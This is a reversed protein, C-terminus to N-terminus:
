RHLVAQLRAQDAGPQGPDAGPLLGEAARIATWRWAALRGGKWRVGGEITLHEALDLVTAECDLGIALSGSGELQSQQVRAPDCRELRLAVEGRLLCLNAELTGGQVALATGSSRIATRELRVAVGKCVVGSGVSHLASDSIDLHGPGNATISGTLESNLMSVKGGDSAITPVPLADSAPRASLRCREIVVAAGSRVRLAPEGTADLSLGDIRCSTLGPEICILGMGPRQDSVFVVGPGDAVLHLGHHARSLTLGGRYMGPALRLTQTDPDSATDIGALITALTDPRAYLEHRPWWALVGALLCAVGATAAVAPWWRWIPSSPASGTTTPLTKGGSIVRRISAWDAVRKSRDKVLMTTLLDLLASDLGRHRLDGLDLQETVQKYMIVASSKGSYLTKGLLAHYLTAGLGYIDSRQDLDQAGSAQEPSMYHPTGLALGAGTLQGAAEHGDQWTKALGFDCLKACFPENVGTRAPGM